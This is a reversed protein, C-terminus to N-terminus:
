KVKVSKVATYKSYVKKGNVTDFARVRVFYKGKKLGAIKKNVSTGNVTVSKTTKKTFKKSTSYEVVFGKVAQKGVKVTFAKKAGKLTSIKFTKKKLAKKSAVGCCPCVSEESGAAFLTATTTTVKFPHNGIACNIPDYTAFGNNAAYKAAMSAAPAIVVFDESAKEMTDTPDPTDENLVDAFGFAKYGLNTENDNVVVRTIGTNFFAYSGVNEVDKPLVIEGKLAIDGNFCGYVIEKLSAPINISSLKTMEDMGDIYEVSDPISIATINKRLGFNTSNMSVNKVAMGDITAPVAVTTSTGDYGYVSVGVGVCEEVKQPADLLVVKYQLTKDNTVPDSVWESVVKSNIEMEALYTTYGYDFDTAEISFTSTSNVGTTVVFQYTEGASLKIVDVGPIYADNEALLTSGAPVTINKDEFGNITNYTGNTVVSYVPTTYGGDVTTLDYDLANPKKENQRYVDVYSYGMDDRTKNAGFPVASLKVAYFGSVAPTFTLYVPSDAAKDAVTTTVPAAYPTWAIEKKEEAFASFAGVTLTSLAMLMALVVSLTKKTFTKM